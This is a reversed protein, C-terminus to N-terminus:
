YVDEPGVRFEEGNERVHRRERDRKLPKRMDFADEGGAEGLDEDEELSEAYYRVVRRFVSYGMGRYMAIAARNSARVYLDVFWAAAANCASELRTTLTAAYRLRRHTPSVTLITIHGHWPLPNPPTYHPPHTELKGMIYAVIKAPTTTSTSPSSSPSPSLPTNKTVTVTPSYGYEEVCQFLSPWRMLYTLYFNLDYNETYSDLNCLNLHLLDLPHLRRTTPM